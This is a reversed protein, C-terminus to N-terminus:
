EVGAIVKAVRLDRGPVGVEKAFGGFKGVMEALGNRLASLLVLVDESRRQEDAFGVDTWHVSLSASFNEVNQYTAILTQMIVPVDKAVKGYDDEQISAAALHTLSEVADLILGLESHPQRFLISQIRRPFTQRFPQGLWSKLFRTLYVNLQSQVHAPAIAQQQEATLLKNRAAELYQQTKTPTNPSGSSSIPNNGISKAFTGVRNEVLERKTSPPSPNMFVPEERLPPGIRPLSQVDQPRFTAQQESSPQGYESIRSNVAQITKLCETCIQSWTPGGIRDIDKFILVRRQPFNRSIQALEWFAFGKVLPKKSQLGNILVGNPDRSDQSIPQGRKLPEQAVYIDFALNSVRWLLLLLFGSVLSRFILTIHYPPIISLEAAHPIDYRLLRAFFLSTQWALRRVTFAYIIPGLISLSLSIIGIEKVLPLLRIKFQELANFGEVPRAESSSSSPTPCTPRQIKDYDLYLHLATQLLGLGIYFSRLYIPRENLRQREWSRGQSVWDLNAGAPVSWIYFQAYLWATAVYCFLVEFVDTDGLYRRFTRFPSATSRSGFHLLAVRLVFVLLPCLFLLLTRIGSSSKDGIVIAELYCLLLSVGAAKTFRRHLSPTLLERYPRTRSPTPM